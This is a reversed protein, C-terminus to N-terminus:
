AGARSELADLRAQLEQVAGQLRALEEQKSQQFKQIRQLGDNLDERTQAILTQRRRESLEPTDLFDILKLADEADGRDWNAEGDEDRTLVSQLQNPELGVTLALTETIANLAPSSVRVNFWNHRQKGGQENALENVIQTRIEQLDM